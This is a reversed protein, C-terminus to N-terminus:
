PTNEEHPLLYALAACIDGEQIRDIYKFYYDKAESRDPRRSTM